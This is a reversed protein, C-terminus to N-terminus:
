GRGAVPSSSPSSASVGAADVRLRKFSMGFRSLGIVGLICTTLYSSMHSVLVIALATSHDYKGHFPLVLAQQGAWQIVGIFGPSSPVAIALCIAVLMFSAEALTGDPQFARIIAWNAAITFVWIGLSCCFAPLMAGSRFLLSIGEINQRWLTLIKEEHLVPLFRCVSRLVNEGREGLRMLIVLCIVVTLVLVGFIMGASRMRAPIEMLPLLAVLALLIMCMDLLRELAAAGAVQILPIDRRKSMAVVRAADGMRLPLINTFLFGIMEAWFSDSLGARRSLLTQWVKARAFLSIMLLVLALIIWPIRAGVLASLLEKFPVNRVALWLCTFSVAFGSIM